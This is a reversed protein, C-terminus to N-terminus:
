LEEPRVACARRVEQVTAPADLRFLEPLGREARSARIAAKVAFFVSNALVLPPEGVEKASFIGQSDEPIAAVSPHDRPFLHVDFRLPVGTQAPIKYRWTNVTELRGKEDGTTRHVLRESLLYGVGQMFAGEVQGVDIAPNMSRGMDYMVDASIIKVEGTLVDVEAVACAASYTFGVFQDFESPAAGPARTVGHLHPQRDAPKYTLAPLPTEGGHVATHFAETLPIRHAYAQRVLNQWILSKVGNVEVQASWGKTGHNWYDVGLARCRADGLERLLRQGFDALRSRVRECTNNVAECSYPTGTSAGSSTANPTVTSQPQEVHILAMPVNLVYSAVQLVQTALGQGMEVGGHHIVVSGDARNIVVTASAQELQALNYGSGYKIPIMSLGRKRWRHAKNFEAVEKKLTALGCTEALLDWVQRIYCTPLAQGFPTVDGRRYLNKARLEDPPMKLAVAADEIASEIINKAQVDGFARMATNPATNTRCVDVESEFEAVRYANDTRTQICNAVIFSCDYFAGGDGWMRSRFGRILGRDGANAAGTDVAVQCEGRYAHRKGIVATDVDRPLVLRAPRRFVYAALAAAAIVSRSPESKGGFGGGLPPIHVQVKHYPLGLTMAVAQQAVMPSQTAAHVVIRGEDAPMALCAQTELYFHAQGGTDQDSHIVLCDYGDVKADRTAPTGTPTHSVWDLRSGPRTVKWIHWMFGAHEPGDPFVSGRAIADTLGLVPQAWQGPWDIPRYGVCHAGVHDAIRQAQVETEAAVLAVVQGVYHVSGAALVPQDMAMGQHNVGGDPLDASTLLGHFGPFTKRLHERLNRPTVAAGDVRFDFNALARRSTVVALHVTRPPPALDHTYHIAGTTQSLATAKVYPAAVPEKYPEPTFRQRGDSVPWAGWHEIGASRLTGPLTVGKRGLANLLAKYLMAVGLEARYEDTVGESPEGARRGAWRALETTLEKHLTRCARGASEVSLQTNHLVKETEAARWPWPAVGGFVLSASAVAAPSGSVGRLVTTANVLTHANVERLAVKQALVVTDAAGAPMDYRVIVMREALAPDHRVLSVLDAAKRTARTVTGDDAIEAYDIDAGIAVLVTFLDSPFAEGASDALHSLVMMTNGGLSAANRVIRGGTRRAMYAIAALGSPSGPYAFTRPATETVAPRLAEILDAYGTGATATCRQPTVTVSPALEDIGSLDIFVTVDAYEARYVGFSTNGMVLRFRRKAKRCEAVLRGLAALDTPCRWQRAGGTVEVPRRPSKAAAPFPVTVSDAPTRGAMEPSPLCTMRAKEDATNWDSAMTKMATLIPRYGTCRCLNGDCAAEVEAKTAKDHNTLFETMNMVFGPSCFGCQTGNNAALRWAVRSVSEDAAGATDDGAAEEIDGFTQSVAATYDSQGAQVAEALPDPLPSDAPAVIRGGSPAHMLPADVQPPGGGVGEVTTVSLGNLACVPRLCSNVARHVPRTGDWSSVIVTCSGCGGEGCGKKAGTLGVDGSRLFDILLLAPDPDDISVPKGNIHFSVVSM